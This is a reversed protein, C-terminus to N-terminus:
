VVPFPKTDDATIGRRLVTFLRGYQDNPPRVSYNENVKIGGNVSRELAAEALQAAAKPSSPPNPPPTLRRAYVTEGLENKMPVVTLTFLGESQDKSM